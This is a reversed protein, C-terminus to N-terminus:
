QIWSLERIYGDDLMEAADLIANIKTAETRHKDLAVEISSKPKHLIISRVVCEVDELVQENTFRLVKCNRNRELWQTRKDDYEKQKKHSKGDVEVVLKYHRCPIRFDPIYLKGETFFFAQQKFSIGHKYLADALTKEPKTPRRKMRRSYMLGKIQKEKYAETQM